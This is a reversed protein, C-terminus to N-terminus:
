RLGKVRRLYSDIPIPAGNAYSISSNQLDLLCELGPSRLLLSGGRPSLSIRLRDYLDTFTSHSSFSGTSDELFLPLGYQTSQPRM